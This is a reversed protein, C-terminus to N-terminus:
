TGAKKIADNKNPLADTLRKRKAPQVYLAQLMEEIMEVAVDAQEQGCIFEHDHAVENGLLRITDALEIPGELASYHTQLEKLRGKLGKNPPPLGLAKYREATMLEVVLRVGMGVLMWAAVEVGAYVQRMVEIINPPVITGDEFEPSPFSPRGRPLVSFPVRDNWTRSQAVVPQGCQACIFLFAVPNGDEPDHYGAQNFSAVHHCNPCKGNLQLRYDSVVRLKM